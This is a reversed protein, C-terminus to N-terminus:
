LGGAQGQERPEYAPLSESGGSELSRADERAMVALVRQGLVWPLALHLLREGQVATELDPALAAAQPIMYQDAPIGARHQPLPEGSLPELTPSPPSPLEQELYGGDKHSVDIASSTSFSPARRLGAADGEQAGCENGSVLRYRTDTSEDRIRDDAQWEFRARSHSRVLVPTFPTDDSHSPSRGSRDRLACTRTRRRRMWRLLLLVAAGAVLVVSATAAVLAPAPIRSVRQSSASSSAASPVLPQLSESLGSGASTQTHASTSTSNGVASSVGLLSSVRLGSTFTPASTIPAYQATSQSPDSTVSSQPLVVRTLEVSTVSAGSPSPSPSPTMSPTSSQSTSDLNSASLSTSILRGATTSPLTPTVTHTLTTTTGQASTKSSASTSDSPTDSATVVTSCGGLIFWFRKSRRPQSTTPMNELSPPSARM